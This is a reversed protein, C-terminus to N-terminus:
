AADQPGPSGARLQAAQRAMEDAQRFARVMPDNERERAKRAERRAALDVAIRDREATVATIEGLTNLRVPRGSVIVPRSVSGWPLPHGPDGDRDKRPPTM